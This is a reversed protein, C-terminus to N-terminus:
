NKSRIALAPEMIFLVTKAAFSAALATNRTRDDLLPVALMADAVQVMIKM